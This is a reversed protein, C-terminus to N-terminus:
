ERDSEEPAAQMLRLLQAKKGERLTEYDEAAIEGAQFDDDLGALEELLAESDPESFVEATVPLARRRRMQYRFGIGAAIVVPIM